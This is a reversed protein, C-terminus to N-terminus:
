FSTQEAEPVEHFGEPMDETKLVVCQCKMGNLRVRKTYARGEAEILGERKMWSLFSAPNYGNDTCARNFVDRIISIKGVDAKGWVEPVDDRGSFKRGNQVLWDLLWEYARSDSSVESHTALFQAVEDVALGNGDKFILADALADATLILSAAMVQKETIDKKSLRGFFDKQMKKALEMVDPKMLEEVFLRGAHGYNGVVFDATEKANKFFSANESNIEIIRNVAGAGSHASTIPSEGSTLICNRWTSTKQLGGAKAGRKRGTGESLKYIMSDFMKKEGKQIQMEDLILPLSNVFGASLEQGVDTSNFTHIYEGVKPNAWVSAALMLAVTKGNGSGGWLHVFFVNCNCPEVLVSAFSSALVIKAPINNELRIKRVFRIWEQADGEQRVAHYFDRCIADGDFILGDVYPSFDKQGIWGLRSVSNHEPIMDYNLHEVDCIYQVLFKANESTVAIGYDALGVISRASALQSRDCIRSKWRGGKCYAIRTKEIGTDINVLREVPMLPHVCAIEEYGRAGFRSIGLDDAKWGGTNLELEQGTFNSVNEAYAQSNALAVSKCYEAFIAKFNRVGCKYALAAMKTLSREREFPSKMQYLKEYPETSDLFYEKTYIMSRQNGDGM